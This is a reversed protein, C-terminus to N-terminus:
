AKGNCTPMMAVGIYLGLIAALAYIISPGCGTPPRQGSM